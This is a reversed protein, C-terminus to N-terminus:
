HTRAPQYAYPYTAPESHVLETQTPCWACCVRCPCCWLITCLGNMDCNVCTNAMSIGCYCPWCWIRNCFNQNQLNPTFDIWEPM